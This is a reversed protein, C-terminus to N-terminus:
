FPATYEQVAAIRELADAIRELLAALETSPTSSISPISPTASSPSPSGAPTCADIISDVIENVESTNDADWRYGSNRFGIELYHHLLRKAQLSSKDAPM